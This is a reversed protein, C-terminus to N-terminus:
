MNIYGRESRNLRERDVEERGEIHFHALTVGMKLVPSGVSM